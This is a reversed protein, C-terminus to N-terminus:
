VFVFVFSLQWCSSRKDAIPLLCGVFMFVSEYASLFVFLFKNIARVTVLQECKYKPWCLCLLAKVLRINSLHSLGIFANKGDLINGGSMQSHHLVVKSCKISINVSQASYFFLVAPPHRM